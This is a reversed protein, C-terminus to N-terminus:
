QNQHANKKESLKRIKDPSIIIQEHGFKDKSEM